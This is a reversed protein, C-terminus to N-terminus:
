DNLIVDIIKKSSNGSGYPSKWDKKKKLMHEVGSLVDEKQIGVIMNAGVNVTEPRETEDRLTVCPVGLICAEEQIGGSDTLILRANKQLVLFDFYGVPDIVDIEKLYDNFGFNDIMKRTRPHIPYIIKESYRQALAQISKLLNELNAKHDVNLARHATILFFKSNALKLKGLIKSKEEAILINQEIADAITNGVVLIKKKDIGENILIREQIKTPTFLYDSIHDTVIRNTEEPMKRNYSRLGAEIHGVKIHLKIAALAAGLVTNTDGEVLVVFPKEKLLIEEIKILINGTQNGHTSSGVNLNYNPLPLSLEEFFIKDMEYSYHQNSHVIFFNLNNDVCYRIVPSMKIVEPRTGIVICIKNNM